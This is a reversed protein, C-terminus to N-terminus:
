GWQTVNSKGPATLRSGAGGEQAPLPFPIGRNFAKLYQSLWQIEDQDALCAVCTAPTGSISPMMTFIPAPTILTLSARSAFHHTPRPRCICGFRCFRGNSERSRIMLTESLVIATRCKLQRRRSIRLIGGWGDLTGTWCANGQRAEPCSLARWLV